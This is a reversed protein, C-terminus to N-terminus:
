SIIESHKAKAKLWEVVGQRRKKEQCHSLSSDIFDRPVHVWVRLGWFCFGAFTCPMLLSALVVFAL